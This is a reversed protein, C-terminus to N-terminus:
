DQFDDDEEEEWSYKKEPPKPDRNRYAVACILGMLAGFLHYEFSIYEERPLISLLMGGYLFFVMMALAMAPKDRRFVGIFFLFFMMGHTLGSAGFHTTAERAFLWVGIGSGLYIIALVPKASKPYEYFLATALVFLPLTNAFLHEFSGHILPALAIGILGTLERPKVGYGRFDWEFLLEAGKVLWLLTIAICVKIATSKLTTAHM